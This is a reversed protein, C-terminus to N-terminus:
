ADRLAKWLRQQMNDLARQYAIRDELGAIHPEVALVGKIQRIADITAQADDDRLDRVLTVLLANIRDTM